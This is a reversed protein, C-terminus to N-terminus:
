AGGCWALLGIAVAFLLCVSVIGFGIGSSPTKGTLHDRVPDQDTPPYPSDADGVSPASIVDDPQTFSGQHGAADAPAAGQVSPRTSM